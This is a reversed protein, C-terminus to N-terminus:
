ILITQILALLLDPGYVDAFLHGLFWAGLLESDSPKGMQLQIYANADKISPYYHLSRCIDFWRNKHIYAGRGNILRSLTWRGQPMHLPCFVLCVPWWRAPNKWLGYRLRCCGGQLAPWQCWLLSLVWWVGYNRCQDAPVLQGPRIPLCVADFGKWDTRQDRPQHLRFPGLSVLDLIDYVMRRAYSSSCRKYVAAHSGDRPSKLQM